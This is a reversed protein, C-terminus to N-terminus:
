LNMNVFSFTLVFIFIVFKLKKWIFNFIYSFFFYKGRNKALVRNERPDALFIKIKRLQVM